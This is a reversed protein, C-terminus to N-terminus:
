GAALWRGPNIPKVGFRLEFTMGSTGASPTNGATGLADGPAVDQGARVQTRSLNTYVSCAGNGHSVVVVQGLAGLEGTWIVRGWHVASVRAGPATAFGMGDRPPTAQPDFGTVRRGTVPQPLRGQMAEIPHDRSAVPSPDAEQALELVRELRRRPTAADPRPDPDRLGAAILEDRTAEVQVALSAAQAALAADKAELAALEATKRGLAEVQARANANAADLGAAGRDAEEWPAADGLVASVRVNMRWLEPLMERVRATLSQIEDRLASAARRQADREVGLAALRATQAKLQAKVRRAEEGLPPAPAAASVAACALLAATLLAPLWAPLRRM